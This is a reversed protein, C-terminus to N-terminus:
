ASVKKKGVKSEEGRLLRRINPRHSIMVLSWIALCMLTAPLNNLSFLDDRTFIARLVLVTFAGCMSGLSIYRFVAVLLLFVSLGCIFPLPVLAALAGAGTSVGKGGKFGLWCTYNHGLVACIGGLAKFLEAYSWDATFFLASIFFVPVFGKLLDIVLVPIGWKKGCVRLVNTFGINGSGEKRVDKGAMFGLLLGVPISGCLYCTLLFLGPLLYEM